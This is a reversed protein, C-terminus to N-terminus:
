VQVQEVVRIGLSNRMSILKPPLAGGLALRVDIKVPQQQFAMLAVLVAKYKVCQFLGRAIDADDAQAPKVEVVFWCDTTTFLVDVSDGSPLKYEPSGVELQTSLGVLEPASRIAQKLEAHDPGEGGRRRSAKNLVRDVDAQTRQMGCATLVDDWWPYAYIDAWYANLFRRKEVVDLDEYGKSALFGDFGPGPLRTQRNIVLSEIQPVNHKFRKSLQEMARGIEGLPYNLNRANPIGAEQALDSYCVPKKADAQRILIALVQRARQQYLKDGTLYLKM